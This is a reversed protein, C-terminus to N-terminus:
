GWRAQDPAAPRRGSPVGKWGFDPGRLGANGRTQTVRFPGIRFWARFVFIEGAYEFELPARRFIRLEDFPKGLMAGTLASLDPHGLAALADAHHEAVSGVHCPPLRPRLLRGLHVLCGRLIARRPKRPSPVFGADSHSLDMAFFHVTREVQTPRDLGLGSQRWLNSVRRVPPGFACFTVPAFGRAGAPTLGAPRPM